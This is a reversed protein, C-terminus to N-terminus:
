TEDKEDDNIDIFKARNSLFLAAAIYKFTLRCIEGDTRGNAAKQSAFFAHMM